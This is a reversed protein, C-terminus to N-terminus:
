HHAVNSKIKRKYCLIYAVPIGFIFILSYYTFISFAVGSAGWSIAGAFMVIMGVLVGGSQLGFWFGVKGISLFCPRLWFFTVRLSFAAWLWILPFIAKDFRQGLLFKPVSIAPVITLFALIGLVIGLLTLRKLNQIFRIGNQVWESALRPYSVQQLADVLYVLGSAITKAIKYCGVESPERFYGLLTIDLQQMPLAITLTASTFLYFRFLEKLRGKLILFAPTALFEKWKMGITQYALYTTVMVQAVTGIIMGLVVGIIGYFHTMFIIIFFQISRCILNTWALFSFKHFTILIAYSTNYFGKILFSFAYLTILPAIFPQKFLSGAAWYSTIMVILFTLCSIFIDIIYSVKCISVTVSFNKAIQFESLFKVTGEITQVNLISYILQPYNMILAIIGYKEPGLWHAIVLMQVIGLFSTAANSFTLLSVNRLFVNSLIMKGKKVVIDQLLELREISRLSM